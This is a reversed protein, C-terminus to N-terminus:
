ITPGPRARYDGVGHLDYIMQRSLGQSCRDSGIGLACFKELDRTALRERTDLVTFLLM